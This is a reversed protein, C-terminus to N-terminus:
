VLRWQKNQRRHDLLEIEFAGRAEFTNKLECLV